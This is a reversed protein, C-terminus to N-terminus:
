RTLIVSIEGNRELFAERVEDLSTTRGHHRVAQRLDEEGIASKRMENCLIEGDRVLQRSSGKVVKAFGDWRFGLAAFGRHALVLAFSAVISPLFPASGSIARSLISGIVIAMLLDFAAIGGLFRKDGVHVMAIGIPYVILARVTMQLVDLDQQGIGLLYVFLEKLETM